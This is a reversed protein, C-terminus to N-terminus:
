AVEGSREPQVSNPQKAPYRVPTSDTVQPEPYYTGLVRVPGRARIVEVPEQLRSFTARFERVSLVPLRSKQNKRAPVSMTGNM